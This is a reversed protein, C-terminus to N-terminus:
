SASCTAPRWATGSRGCAPGTGCRSAPSSPSPNIKPWPSGSRRSPAASRTFATLPVLRRNAPELWRLWHRSTTNRVNPTGRDPEKRLLEKFAPDDIGQGEQSPRRGAQQRGSFPLSARVTRLPGVRPRQGPRKQRAVPAHEPCHKGADRPLSRRRARAVIACIHSKLFGFLILLTGDQHYGDRRAFAHIDFLLM